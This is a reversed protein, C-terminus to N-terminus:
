PAPRRWSSTSSRKAPHSSIVPSARVREPAPPLRRPGLEDADAVLGALSRALLLEVAPLDGLDVRDLEPFALLVLEARLAPPELVGLPDEGAELVDHREQVLILLRGARRSPRAAASRRSRERKSGSAAAGM